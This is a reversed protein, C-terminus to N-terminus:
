IQLYRKDPGIGGRQRQRHRVGRNSACHCSQWYGTGTYRRANGGIDVAIRDGRESSRIPPYDLALEDKALRSQFKVGGDSSVVKIQWDTRGNRITSTNVLFLVDSLAIWRAEIRMPLKARDAYRCLPWRYAEGHLSFYAFADTITQPYNQIRDDASEILKDTKGCPEQSPDQSVRILMSPPDSGPSYLHLTRRTVSQEVSCQQNCEVLRKWADGKASSGDAQLLQLSGNARAIIEDSSSLYIGTLGKANTPLALSLDLKGDPTFRLIRFDLSPAERTVLGVRQRVTFGVVVRGEHDIAILPGSHDLRDPPQWGYDGLSFANSQQAIVHTALFMAISAVSLLM